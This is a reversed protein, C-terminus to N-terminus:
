RHLTEGKFIMLLLVAIIFLHVHCLYSEASIIAVYEDGLCRAEREVACMWCDNLVINNRHFSGSARWMRVVAKQPMFLCFQRGFFEGLYLIDDFNQVGIDSM